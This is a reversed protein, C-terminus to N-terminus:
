AHEFNGQLIGLTAGMLIYVPTAVAFYDMVPAVAAHALILVVPMLLSLGAMFQFRSKSRFLRWGSELLFSLLFLFYLFAGTGEEALTQLYHNYAKFQIMAYQHGPGSAFLESVSEYGRTGVGWLTFNQYIALARQIGERNGSGTTGQQSIDTERELTQIEKVTKQINGAWLLFALVVALAIGAVIMQIRSPYKVLTALLFILFAATFCLITARSFFLIIALGETAMLLGPLLASLSSKHERLTRLSYFFVGMAPFFGMAIVDGMYNPHAYRSVLYKSVLPHFYAFPPFFGLRGEANLYGANAKILLPPIAAVALLFACIMLTKLLLSSESRGRFHFLSIIFFGLYILWMVTSSFYRNLPLMLNDEVGRGWMFWAAWAARALEFGFFLLFFIVTPSRLYGAARLNPVLLLFGVGVLSLYAVRLAPLELTDSGLKLFLSAIFLLFVVLFLRELIRNPM